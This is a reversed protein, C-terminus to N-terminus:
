DRHLKDKVSDVVDEAKDKIDDVIGKAEGKAHETQGERKLRDDGTVNGATKKVSGTFKDSTEGM